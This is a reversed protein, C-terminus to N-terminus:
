PSYYRLRLGGEATIWTSKEAYALRTCFLAAICAVTGAPRRSQILHYYKVFIYYKKRSM